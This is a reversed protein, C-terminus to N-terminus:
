AAKVAALFLTIQERLDASKVAVDEAIEEVCRAEGAASAVADSIASVSASSQSAGGAAEQASSSIEQVAATQQEATSTTAAAQQRIITLADRIRTSEGSVSQSRTKLVGIQDSIQETLQQTQEALAKVESAVVAFGKGADGARAAEITANLALLNTQEAVGNIAVLLESMGDVAQIMADLESRSGTSAESAGVVGQSTERAARLIESISAALEEASSAVTQVSASSEESSSAVSVVRREATDTLGSLSQAAQKLHDGAQLLGSTNREVEDRFNDILAELAAGRRVQEETRADNDAQLSRAASLRTRLAEQARAMEGLTDRLDLYPAEREYDGEALEKIRAILGALPGTLSRLILVALLGALALAVLGAFVIRWITATTAAQYDASLADVRVEIREYKEEILGMLEPGLDDLTQYATVDGGVLAAFTDAYRESGTGLRQIEEELFFGSARLSPLMELIEDINAQVQDVHHQEITARWAFAHMRAEGLDEQVAAVASFAEFSQSLTDFKSSLGQIAFMALIAMVLVMAGLASFGGILRQSISFRDM